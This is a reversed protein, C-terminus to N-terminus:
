QGYLGTQIFPSPAAAGVGRQQSALLAQRKADQSAKLRARLVTEFNSEQGLTMPAGVPAAAVPALTVGVAANVADDIQNGRGSLQGATSGPSVLGLLIELASPM